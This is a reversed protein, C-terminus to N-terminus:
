KRQDDFIKATPIKNSYFNPPIITSIMTKEDTNRAIDRFGLRFYQDDLHQGNDWMRCTLKFIKTNEM